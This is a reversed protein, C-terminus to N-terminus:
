AEILAETAERTRKEQKLDILRQRATYVADYDVGAAEAKKITMEFNEIDEESSTGKSAEIMADRAIKQIILEELHEKAEIIKQKTYQAEEAVFIADRLVDTDIGKMATALNKGASKILVDVAKKGGM